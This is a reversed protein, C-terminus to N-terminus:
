GSERASSGAKLKRYLTKRGIGLLEAARTRNGGVYNLVSQIHQREVEALSQFPAKGETQPVDQVLEQPLDQDSIFNGDTLILSRELVNNLERVNGRGTM